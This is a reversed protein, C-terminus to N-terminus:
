NSMKWHTVPLIHIIRNGIDMFIEAKMKKPMSWVASESGIFHIKNNNDCNKEYIM